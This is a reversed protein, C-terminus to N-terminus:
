HIPYAADSPLHGDIRVVKVSDRVDTLPVVAIAGPTEAVLSLAIGSSPVAAPAAVDEGTSTRELWYQKYSSDNMDLTRLAVEREPSGGNPLLVVIKQSGKWFERKGLLIERLEAMSLNNTPNSKHVIVALANSNQSAGGEVEIDELRNVFILASLPKGNPDLHIGSVGHVKVTAGVLRQAAASSKTPVVLLASAKGDAIRFCIRKWSQDCAWLVGRTEIFHSDASLANLDSVSRHEPTPLTGQGLVHISPQALVTGVDGPGTVADVRLHSGAPFQSSMGHINVYIAGTADALFLLGWEPDSYTAIGELQVPYANRAEVNSLKRVEGITRLTPHNPQAQAFARLSVASLMLACVLACVAHRVKGAFWLRNVALQVKGTPRPTYNEV